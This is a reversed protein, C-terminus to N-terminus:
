GACGPKLANAFRGGRAAMPRDIKGVRWFAFTASGFASALKNAAVAAVPDLGPRYVEAATSRM